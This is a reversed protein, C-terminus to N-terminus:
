KMKLAIEPFGCENFLSALDEVAVPKDDEQQKIHFQIVTLMGQLFAGRAQGRFLETLPLHLDFDLKDDDTTKMRHKWKIDKSKIVTEEWHAMDKKEKQWKRFNLHGEIIDVLRPDLKEM